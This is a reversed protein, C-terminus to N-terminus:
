VHFVTPDSNSIRPEIIPKSLTSISSSLQSARKHPPTAWRKGFSGSHKPGVDTCCPLFASSHTFPESSRHQVDPTRGLVSHTINRSLEDPSVYSNRQHSCERHLVNRPPHVGQQPSMAHAGQPSMTHAGEQPPSMAHAGEQPPSMTHAGELPSMIYADVHPPSLTHAVEQDDEHSYSSALSHGGDHRHSQETVTRTTIIADDSGTCIEAGRTLSEITNPICSTLNVCSNSSAIMKATRDGNVPREVCVTSRRMLETQHGSSRKSNTSCLTDKRRMQAYRSSSRTLLYYSPQCGLAPKGSQHCCNWKNKIFIGPHYHMLMDQNFYCANRISSVWDACESKDRAIVYLAVFGQKKSVYVIQFMHALNFASESVFEM